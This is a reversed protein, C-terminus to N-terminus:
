RTATSRSRSISFRRIAASAGSGTGTASYRSRTRGLRRTTPSRSSGGSTRARASSTSSIGSVLEGTVREARGKWSVTAPVQMRALVGSFVENRDRFDRYMPYSFSRNNMTRGRFAGPDDLQLLQEPDKVPLRRLLVQDLLSFIATNAGIGLALTCIIIATFGPARALTRVAYRIDRWLSPM